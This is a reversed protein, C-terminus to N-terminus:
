LLRLALTIIVGLIGMVLGLVIGTLWMQWRDSVTLGVMGKQVDGLEDNIREVHGLLKRWTEKSPGFWM